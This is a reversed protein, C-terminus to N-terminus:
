LRPYGGCVVVDVAVVGVVVVGTQESGKSQLIPGQQSGASTHVCTQAGSNGYRHMTGNVPVQLMVPVHYVKEPPECNPYKMTSPAFPASSTTANSAVVNQGVVPV